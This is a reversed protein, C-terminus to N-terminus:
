APYGEKTLSRGIWIKYSNPEVQRVIQEITLREIGGTDSADPRAFLPDEDGDPVIEAEEPSDEQALEGRTSKGHTLRYLMGLQGPKKEKSAPPSSSEGGAKEKFLDDAYVYAAFGAALGVIVGVGGTHAFALAPEAILLATGAAALKQGKTAM